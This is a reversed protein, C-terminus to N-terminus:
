SAAKKRRSRRGGGSARQKLEAAIEPEALLAATERNSDANDPELILWLRVIYTRVRDVRENLRKLDAEDYLEVASKNLVKFATTKPKGSKV